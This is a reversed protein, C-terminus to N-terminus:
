RVPRTEWLGEGVNVLALARVLDSGTAIASASGQTRRSQRHSNGNLSARTSLPEFGIGQGRRARRPGIPFSFTSRPRPVCGPGRYRCGTPLRRNPRLELEGPSASIVRLVESTATQQELAEDRERALRTVEHEEAVPSPKPPIQVKEASRHTPKPMKPRRGKIPEGGARSRRKM